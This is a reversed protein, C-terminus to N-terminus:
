ASEEGDITNTEVGRKFGDDLPVAATGNENLWRCLQTSYGHTALVRTCGTGQIVDLLAPWDVHDSVVFGLDSRRQRRRNRISMWGSAFAVSAPGLRAFWADDAPASPAVVIGDSWRTSPTVSEVGATEVDLRGQARYLANMREVSHHCYVPGISPNLGSILRQAKGLSYGLLVSTIGKDRNSTWWRNIRDRVTSAEPWRYIPLGFTCETILTDCQVLDFSECTRDPETKYDGTVVWVEGRHEIRIQASGLIHGAPHLSVSVGNIDVSEGFELSEIRASAGLRERLIPAGSASSLYAKSGPRAHDSHAHTIVARDVARRPDVYFRGASCYIGNQDVSLLPRRSGAPKM